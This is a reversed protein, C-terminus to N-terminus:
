NEFQRNIKGKGGEEGGKKGVEKKGEISSTAHNGKLPKYDM